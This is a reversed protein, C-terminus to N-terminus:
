CLLCLILSKVSIAMIIASKMRTENQMRPPIKKSIAMAISLFSLDLCFACDSLHSYIVM